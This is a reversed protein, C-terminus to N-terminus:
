CTWNKFYDKRFWQCGGSNAKFTYCKKISGQIEDGIKYLNKGIWISGINNPQIDLIEGTVMNESFSKFKLHFDKAYGSVIKKMYITDNETFETIPKSTYNDQQKM